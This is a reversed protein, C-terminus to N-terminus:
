QFNELELRVIHKALSRDFYFQMQNVLWQGLKVNLEKSLHNKLDWNQYYNQGQTTALLHLGGTIWLGDTMTNINNFSQIHIQKINQQCCIRQLDQLLLDHVTDHFPKHYLHQYYSHAAELILQKSDAKKNGNNIADLVMASNLGMNHPNALRQPETHTFIALDIKKNKVFEKFEEYIFFECGGPFSKHHLIKLDFKEVVIQLWTDEYRHCFSDGVIVTNM